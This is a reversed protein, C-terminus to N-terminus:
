TWVVDVGYDQFGKELLETAVSDDVANVHKALVRANFGKDIADFATARVCHETAIGILDINQVDREKLWQELGIDENNAYVGDFGSYGDSYQGKLFRHYPQRFLSEIIKGHIAAGKESAVCHVPWSEFHEGPEIHWDQTTVIYDYNKVNNKVWQATNHTFKAYPDTALSGHVFDNQIDVIILANKM